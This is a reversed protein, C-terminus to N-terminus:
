FDLWHNWGYSCVIVLFLAPIMSALPTDKIKAVKLGGALTLIGGCGIFDLLMKETILSSFERAILYIIGFIVVQPLASISIAGGMISAFIFATSFDLVAKSVLISSDQSMGETLVGFIAFGSACFLVVVTVYENMNIKERNVPLRDLLFSFAETIRKELKLGEGVATGLIVALIVPPMANIKVISSIGITIACLGFIITLTRKMKEPIKTGIISGAIGGFLVAACDVTVGLPM